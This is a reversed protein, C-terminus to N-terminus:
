KVESPLDFDCISAGVVKQAMVKAAYQKFRPGRPDLVRVKPREAPPIDALVRVTQMKDPTVPPEGVAIADIM